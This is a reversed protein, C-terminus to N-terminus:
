SKKTKGLKLPVLLAKRRLVKCRLQNSINSLFIAGANGKSLSPAGKVDLKIPLSLKVRQIFNSNRFTFCIKFGYRLPCISIPIQLVFILSFTFSIRLEVNLPCKLM